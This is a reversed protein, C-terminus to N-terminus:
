AKKARKKPAVLAYSTAILDKAQDLTAEDSITIRVWGYRGIYASPAIHPMQTLVSADEPTAKVTMGLSDGDGGLTAFMKKEIKYVIDGWPYDEFAGDFSMCYAQLDAAYPHEPLAVPPYNATM